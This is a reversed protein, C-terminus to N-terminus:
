SEFEKLAGADYLVANCCLYTSRRFRETVIKRGWAQGHARNRDVARALTDDGCPANFMRDSTQNPGHTRLGLTRPAAAFGPYWNRLGGMEFYLSVFGVKVFVFLGCKESPLPSASYVASYV